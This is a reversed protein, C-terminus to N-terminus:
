AHRGKTKARERALADRLAGNERQLRSLDFTKLASEALAHGLRVQEVAAAGEAELRLALRELFRNIANPSRWRPRPTRREASRVGGRLRAEARKASTEADTAHIFCRGEPSGQYVGNGCIGGAATPANCIM